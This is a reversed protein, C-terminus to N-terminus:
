KAGEIITILQEDTVEAMNDALDYYHTASVAQLADHELATRDIM